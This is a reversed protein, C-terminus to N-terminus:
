SGNEALAAHMVELPAPKGTYLEFQRAAQHLLMRLGNITRAGQERAVQLLPTDPPDYVIDMVCLGERLLHKPVITEAAHAKMGVPTAQVLVDAQRVEDIAALDGFAHAGTDQALKRAKSETRNVITLEAGSQVLGFAVARAAGGAGVLVVKRGRIGGTGLVEELARVAGIWDCNHGILRGQENVVTNVAGIRAATPDLEDLLPLIQVKFPMSIGFGRIGLARMCVLADPLREPTMAFPVYAFPLGLADYAANHMRAGTSVPHLSLSGCLAIPLANPDTCFRM